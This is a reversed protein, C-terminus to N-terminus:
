QPGRCEGEVDVWWTGDALQGYAYYTIGTCPGWDELLSIRANQEAAALTPGNASDRGLVSANAATAGVLAVAMLAPVGIGIIRSAKM